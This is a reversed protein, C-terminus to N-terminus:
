ITVPKIKDNDTYPDKRVMRKIFCYSPKNVPDPTVGHKSHTERQIM